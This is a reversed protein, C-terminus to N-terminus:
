YKPIDFDYNCSLQLTKIYKGSKNVQVVKIPIDDKYPLKVLGGEENFTKEVADFFENETLKTNTLSKFINYIAKVYKDNEYLEMNGPYEKACLIHLTAKGKKYDESISCNISQISQAPPKEFGGLSLVFSGDPLVEALRLGSDEIAKLIKKSLDKKIESVEEVTYTKVDANPASSACGVMLCSSISTAVVMALVIKKVKM